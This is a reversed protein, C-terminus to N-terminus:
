MGYVSALLLMRANEANSEMQFELSYNHKQFLKPYNHSFSQEYGFTRSKTESFLDFDIALPEVILFVIPSLENKAFEILEEVENSSFYELVGSNTVLVTNKTGNLRLWDIANCSYFKVNEDTYNEKNKDIQAENLDIGIFSNITTLRKSLYNVLKGNGTGIEILNNIEHKKIFCELWDIIPMYNKLFVDEFRSNYSTFFFKSKEGQWYNKHFKSLAQINDSKEYKYIIGDKILRDIIPYLQYGFSPISFGNKILEKRRKIFIYSLILGIISKLKKKVKTRM